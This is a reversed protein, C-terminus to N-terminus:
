YEDLQTAIQSFLVKLCRLLLAWQRQAAKTNHTTEKVGNVQAPRM